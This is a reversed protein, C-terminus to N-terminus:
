KFLGKAANLANSAGEGDLLNGGTSMKDMLEPMTQSLKECAAGSDVGMKAAMENVKDEGLANKLQDGSVAKNEGDGLWSSVQDGLGGSKLKEVIGAMDLGQGSTIGSLADMIGGTDGGGSKKNLLEKGMKLLDM